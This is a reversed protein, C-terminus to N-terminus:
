SCETFFGEKAYREVFGESVLYFSDADLGANSTGYITAASQQAVPEEDQAEWEKKAEPWKNQM